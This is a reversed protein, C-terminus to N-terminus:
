RFLLLFHFLCNSFGILSHKKNRHNGSHQNDKAINPEEREQKGEWSKNYAINGESEGHRVLICDLMRPETVEVHPLGAVTYKSLDPLATM